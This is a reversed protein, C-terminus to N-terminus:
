KLTNKLSPLIDQTNQQLQKVIFDFDLKSDYLVVFERAIELLYQPSNKEGHHTLPSMDPADTELVWADIPLRSVLARLKTAKPYTFAGGFGLKFGRKLYEKAQEYSGSYAHIIGRLSTNQKLHKIVEDHSKRAHILVPLQYQSAINLQESFYYGQIKRDTEKIFFDLGIEGIAALAPTESHVASMSACYQTLEDLDSVHHENIFCPHLGLAPYLMNDQHCLSLIKQWDKRCVGPVIITQIDAERCAQIIASRDHDFVSFDLHCHSDILSLQQTDM